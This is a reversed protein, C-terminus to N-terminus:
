VGEERIGLGVPFLPVGYLSLTQYKVTLMQGIHQARNDFLSRRHEATGKCVVDFFSHPNDASVQVNPNTQCTFICQGEFKGRGEKADM